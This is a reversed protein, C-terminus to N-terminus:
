KAEHESFIKKFPEKFKIKLGVEESFSQLLLLINQYMEMGNPVDLVGNYDAGMCVHEAGIMSSNPTRRQGLWRCDIMTATSVHSLDVFM